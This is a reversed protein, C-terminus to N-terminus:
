RKFIFLKGLNTLWISLATIGMIVVPAYSGFMETIQEPNELIGSLWQIMSAVIIGALTILLSKGAKGLDKKDLSMPQSGENPLKLKTQIDM